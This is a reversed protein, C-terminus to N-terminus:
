MSGPLGICFRMMSDKLGRRRSSHRFVLQNGLKRWARSVPATTLVITDGKDFVPEVALDGTRVKRGPVDLLIPLEPLVERLLRITAVHWDLTNHSGNLRAVNMGAAQLARLMDANDTAPGITCVIRTQSM